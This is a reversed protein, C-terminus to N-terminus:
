RHTKTHGESAHETGFNKQPYLFDKGCTANNGPLTRERIAQRTGGNLRDIAAAVEDQSRATAAARAEHERLAGGLVGAIAAALAECREPPPPAAREDAAGDVAPEPSRDGAVASPSPCPSSSSSPAAPPPDSGDM